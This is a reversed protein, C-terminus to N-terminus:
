AASDNEQEAYRRQGEDESLPRLSIMMWGQLACFREALRQLETGADRGEAIEFKMVRNVRRGLEADIAAKLLAYRTTTM